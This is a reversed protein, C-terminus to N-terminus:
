NGKKRWVPVLRLRLILVDAGYGRGHILQKLIEINKLNPDNPRAIYQIEEAHVGNFSNLLHNLAYAQM